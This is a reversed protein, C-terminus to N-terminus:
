GGHAQPPYRSLGELVEADNLEDARDLAPGYNDHRRPGDKDEQGHMGLVKWAGDGTPQPRWRTFHEWYAPVEHDEPTTRPPGPRLALSAEEMTVYPDPNAVLAPVPGELDADLMDNLAQDVERSAQNPLDGTQNYVELEAPTWGLADHLQDPGIGM